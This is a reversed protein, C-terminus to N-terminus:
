DAEYGIRENETSEKQTKAAHLPGGEEKTTPPHAEGERETKNLSM